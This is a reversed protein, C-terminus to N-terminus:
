RLLQPSDIRRPQKEGEGNYLNFLKTTLISPDATSSHLGGHNGTFTQNYCNASNMIIKKAQHRADQLRM